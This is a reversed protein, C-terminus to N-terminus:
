GIPTLSWGGAMKFFEEYKVDGGGDRDCMKIMEEVEEQTAKEGIFDLFFLLDESTIAGDKNMDLITFADKVEEETFM